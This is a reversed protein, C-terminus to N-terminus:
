CSVTCGKSAAKLESVFRKPVKTATTQLGGIGADSFHAPLENHQVYAWLREIRDYPEGCSDVEWVDRVLVIRYKHSPDDPTQWSELCRLLPAVKDDHDHDIVDDTAPSYTELDWEYFTKTKM